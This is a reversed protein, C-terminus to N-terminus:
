GAAQWEGLRAVRSLPGRGRLAEKAEGITFFSGTVLVPRTGQVAVKLAEAVTPAVTGDHGLARACERLEEPAAARGYGPATFIIGEALPLLPQLIGTLDKDSMAGIIVVPREGDKLAGALARAAAPNHAGDILVPPDDSIRELRGPPRMLSLGERIARENAASSDIMLTFAKVALAANLAQYEGSVPLKLDSLTIDESNYDFAIGDPGHAKVKYTFDEGVIHLSAGMRKTTSRLVKMAHPEQPATVVPVGEKIIGAKERAIDEIGEGLFEKHDLAISTIVAVNPSLSNTADLRGGMGTEVVAWQVGCEKFYQFGMATVVEFFTPNLDSTRERIVSALRGVDDEAIEEGGVRLRETFSVLHPSTFLGARKGSARLLEALAFATSGKGNTGAIHASSFAGHPSGLRSLIETINRLGLKIGHRQLGYLYDITSEYNNM